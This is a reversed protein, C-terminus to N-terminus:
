PQGEQNSAIAERLSRTVRVIEDNVGAMHELRELVYRTLEPAGREAEHRFLAAADLHKGGPTPILLDDVPPTLFWAPPRDLVEGLVVLEVATFERGGQEAASVAQRSWARGLYPEVLHGLSEQTLGAALRAARLREGVIEQVTTTEPM